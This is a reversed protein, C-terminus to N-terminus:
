EELRLGDVCLVDARATAKEWDCAPSDIIGGRLQVGRFACCHEIHCGAGNQVPGGVCTPLAGDGVLGQVVVDGDGLVDDVNQALLHSPM